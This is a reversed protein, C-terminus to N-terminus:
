FSGNTGVGQEYDVGTVTPHKKKLIVPPSGLQGFYQNFKEANFLTAPRLYHDSDTGSWELIKRDIVNRIEDLSRGENMRARIFKLNSDVTQFNKGTQANLYEIIQSADDPKGSMLTKTIETDTDSDTDLANSKTETVNCPQKKGKKKRERHAAVRKASSDSKFQRKNWATPKNEDDLLGLGVLSLKTEAYDENSIRLQFAVQDDQLTVDENSCRLCLLMVFRRQDSESLMQIKPDTAFEHYMRFWQNM